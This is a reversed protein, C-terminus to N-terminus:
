YHVFDTSKGTKPYVVVVKQGTITAKFGPLTQTIEAFPTCTTSGNRHAVFLLFIYGIQQIWILRAIKSYSSLYFSFMTSTGM